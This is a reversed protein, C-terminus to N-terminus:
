KYLFISIINLILVLSTMIVTSLHLITWTKDNSRDKANNIVPTIIYCISMLVLSSISSIKAVNQEINFLFLCVASVLSIIGIILFFKPWIFRLFVSAEKSNIRKNIAPAILITQFM